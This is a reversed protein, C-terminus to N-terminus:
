GSIPHISPMRPKPDHSKPDKAKKTRSTSVWHVNKRRKQLPKVEFDFVLLFPHGQKERGSPDQSLQPVFSVDAVNARAEPSPWQTTNRLKERQLESWTNFHEKEWVEQPAWKGNMKQHALNGKLVM